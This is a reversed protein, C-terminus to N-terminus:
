PRAGEHHPHRQHGPQHRPLADSPATLLVVDARHSPPLEVLLDPADLPVTATALSGAVGASATSPGPWVGGDEGRTVVGVLREEGFRSPRVRLRRTRTPSLNVLSLEVRGTGDAGRDLGSVLAAVDPPLGPRHRDADTYAVAAFPLGGNYLTQPTGTVLQGLVETVVPNARQWFHLHVTGPEVPEADMVAVRRALQGLAMSLAREPYEPLAGDLFALWPGEHGAEVKDRFPRVERSGPLGDLVRDLRKRDADDRTWWWLWTPLDLQLPGFDFWGEAGFRYPVLTAPEAAHPGLRELWSGRLSFPTETVPATIAHDLATDLMTRVLDLPGDDRRGPGSVAGSVFSANIAGILTSMGVSHLGHPWTWGYHGGYWAGDHLGGVTGDPAVNDPMLGGAAAARERWGDVYRAVWAASAADNDYLWRNTVLSTAALNVATDGAARRQLEDGMLRAHAPDELDSWRTIGPLGHLPLGYAEMYDLSAPYTLWETGLGPLPGRAGNHPATILNRAPDYNGHEPDTYLAAFRRARDAFREDDPDAACLGYFLLLSEGQHFWDYGNEYEGTLMGAETLQATVGEFHHKAAYLVDDSGGLAYFAPWNFFPEYLDDVGDRHEFGGAHLIRGDPGTYRASFLRWAEETADFLRRELVAWAPVEHLPTTPIRM